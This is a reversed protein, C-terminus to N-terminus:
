FKEILLNDILRVKGIRVAVAILTGERIELSSDLSETDVIDVYDIQALPEAQIIKEMRRILSATQREGQAIMNEAEKLSMHLCLAARRQEANLYVNRSSLALGDDERVIPLVEIRVDLNLDKAMRKLIITQQADKQGFYATDPQVISFLKLVVTCVGRFHGPRSRGCLKDQLSHVEIYTRYGAPYMEEQGPYFLYDTGLEELLAADRNWDRPYERFDEGPGFQTPNVFISVVTADTEGLSARVLSLHGEHLYGMTPVLGLTKGQLRLEKVAEKMRNINRVIEM